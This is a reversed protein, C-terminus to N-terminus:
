PADPVKALEIHRGEGMPFRPWPRWEWVRGSPGTVKRQWGPAAQLVPWDLRAEDDTVGATTEWVGEPYTATM